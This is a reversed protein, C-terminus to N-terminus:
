EEGGRSSRHAQSGHSLAEPEYHGEKIGGFKTPSGVASASRVEELKLRFEREGPEVREEGSV